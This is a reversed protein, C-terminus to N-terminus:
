IHILSLDIGVIDALYNFGLEKYHAMEGKFAERPLVVWLNGLGNDEVAYGKTQAEELVVQLRM